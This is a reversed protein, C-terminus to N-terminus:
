TGALATGAQDAGRGDAPHGGRGSSDPLAEGPAVAAAGGDRVGPMHAAPAQGDAGNAGAGGRAGSDADGRFTRPDQLAETYRQWAAFVLDAHAADDIFADLAPGRALVGGPALSEDVGEIKELVAKLKIRRAAMEKEGTPDAAQDVEGILLDILGRLQHYRLHKAEMWVTVVDGDDDLVAVDFRLPRRALTPTKYTKAM